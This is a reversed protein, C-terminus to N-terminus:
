IDEVGRRQGAQRKEAKCSDYQPSCGAEFCGGTAKKNLKRWMENLGEGPVSSVLTYARGAKGDIYDALVTPVPVTPAKERVFKIAAAETGM